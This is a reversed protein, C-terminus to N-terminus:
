RFYAKSCLSKCSCFAFNSLEVHRTKKSAGFRTSMSKGASSDTFFAFTCARLLIEILRSKVFLCESTGLGISYLEAEGSSTAITQQTRSQSAILCGNFFVSVGSTSKRTNVCGAWDSDVYAVVDLSSMEPRLKVRPRLTLVCAKIGALYRLLMNVKTKHDETPSSTLGRSLGRSLTYQIDPRISSLWLLQGVIRRYKRHEVASLPEESEIKKRLSENAPVPSVKCQLPDYEDLIKDVYSAPM